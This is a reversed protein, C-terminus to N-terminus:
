LKEGSLAKRATDLLFEFNERAAVIFHMAAYDLEPRGIRDFRAPPAGLSSCVLPGTPKGNWPSVRGTGWHERGSKGFLEQRFQAEVDLMGSFVAELMALRNAPDSENRIRDVALSTDRDCVTGVKERLEAYDIKARGSEASPHARSEAAVAHCDIEYETM